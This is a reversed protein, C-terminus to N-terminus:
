TDPPASCWPGGPPPGTATIARTYCARAAAPTRAGCSQCELIDAFPVFRRAANMKAKSFDVSATSAVMSRWPEGSALDIERDAAVPEIRMGNQPKSAKLLDSTSAATVLTCSARNANLLKSRSAAAQRAWIRYKRHSYGRPSKRCSRAHEIM